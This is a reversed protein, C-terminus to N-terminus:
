ILDPVEACLRLDLLQAQNLFPFIIGETGIHRIQGISPDDDGGMLVNFGELSLHIISVHDISIEHSGNGNRALKLDHDRLLDPLLKAQDGAL